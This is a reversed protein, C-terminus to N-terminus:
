RVTTSFQEMPYAGADFGYIQMSGDDRGVVLDPVGDKTVDFSEICNVTGSHPESPLEWGRSLDGGVVSLKGIRGNDTGYIIDDCEGRDDAEADALRNRYSTVCSIPGEVSARYLVDSGQIVRVYRDQCGLVVDYERAGPVVTTVMMHNIKDDCMYFNIDRGQDDFLNYVFDGATWIRTDEVFLNTIPETLNSKFHFVSKGKKNLGHIDVGMAIFVKDNVGKKGGLATYTVERDDVHTKFLVNAERKKMQFCTVDGTDDAVVVKQRKHKGFPMMKLTGRHSTNGVQMVDARILELDM